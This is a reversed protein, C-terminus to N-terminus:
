ARHAVLRELYRERVHQEGSGRGDARYPVVRIRGPEHGLAILVRRVFVWAQLDECLVTAQVRNPPMTGGSHWPVRPTSGPRLSSVSWEPRGPGTASSGGAM